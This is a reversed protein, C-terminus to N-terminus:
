LVWLSGVLESPGGFEEVAQVVGPWNTKDYDHGCIIRANVRKAFEIDRRTEEYSHGADLFMLAPAPGKYGAYFLNKDMVVQEVNLKESAGALLRGTLWQHEKSSLDWPNWVFMDVTILKQDVPKALAMIRTSWGFLTGIEIIPGEKPARRVLEGLGRAEDITIEGFALSTLQGLTITREAPSEGPRFKRIEYGISRFLNQVLKKTMQSMTIGEIAIVSGDM